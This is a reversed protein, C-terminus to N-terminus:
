DCGWYLYYFYIRIYLCCLIRLLRGIAKSKVPLMNSQCMFSIKGHIKWCRRKCASTNWFKIFGQSIQCKTEPNTLTNKYKYYQNCDEAVLTSLLGYYYHDWSQEFCYNCLTNLIHFSVNGTTPCWCLPYMGYCMCM